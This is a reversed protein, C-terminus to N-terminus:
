VAVGYRDTKVYSPRHTLMGMVEPKPHPNAETVKKTLSVEYVTEDPRSEVVRASYSSEDYIGAGMAQAIARSPSSDFSFCKILAKPDSSRSMFRMTPM